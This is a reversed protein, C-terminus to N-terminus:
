AQLMSDRVGYNLPLEVIQHHIQFSSRQLGTERGGLIEVLLLHNLRQCPRVATSECAM